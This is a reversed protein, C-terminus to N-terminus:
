EPFGSFHGSGDGGRGTQNRVDPILAQDMAVKRLAAAVTGTLAHTSGGRQTANERGYIRIQSNPDLNKFVVLEAKDIGALKAAEIRHHGAIIFIEDDDTQNVVVGGWFGDQEISERLKTVASVYGIESNDNEPGDIPDVTFDRYPNPKLSALTVIMKM